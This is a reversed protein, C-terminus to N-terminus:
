RIVELHTDPAVGLNKKASSNVKKKKMKKSKQRMTLIRQEHGDYDEISDSYDSIDSGESLFRIHQNIKGVEERGANSLVLVGEDSRHAVPLSDPIILDERQNSSVSFSLDQFKLQVGKKKLSGRRKSVSSHAQNGDSLGPGASLGPGSKGCNDGCLDVGQGM